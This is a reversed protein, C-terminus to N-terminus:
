EGPGKCAIVQEMTYTTWGPISVSVPWEPDLAPNAAAALKAKGEETANEWLEPNVLV